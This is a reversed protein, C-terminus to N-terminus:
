RLITLPSLLLFKSLCGYFMLAVSASAAAAAAASFFLLSFFYFTSTARSRGESFPFHRYCLLCVFHTSLSSRLTLLLLLLLLPFVVQFSYVVKM